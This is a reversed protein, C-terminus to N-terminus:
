VRAGITFSDVYACSQVTDGSVLYLTRFIITPFCKQGNLRAVVGGRARSVTSTHCWRFGRLGSFWAHFKRVRSIVPQLLSVCSDGSLVRGPRHSPGWDPCDVRFVEVM